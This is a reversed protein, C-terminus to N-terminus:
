IIILVVEPRAKLGGSRRKYGSSIAQSMSLKPRHDDDGVRSKEVRDIFVYKSREDSSDTKVKVTQLDDVQRMKGPTIQKEDAEIHNSERRFKM